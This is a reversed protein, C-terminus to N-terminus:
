FEYKRVEGHGTGRIAAVADEIEDTTLTWRGELDSVVRLTFQQYCDLALALGNNSAVIPTRVATVELAEYAARPSM